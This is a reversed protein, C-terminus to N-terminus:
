LSEKENPDHSTLDPAPAVLRTVAERLAPRDDRRALRLGTDLLVDDPALWTIVDLGEHGVFKGAMGSSTGAGRVAAAPIFLTGPGPREIVVGAEHVSLTASAREGLEPTSVRALWDGSLTSSVYTARVPPLLQTGLDPVGAVVPVAPVRPVLSRGERRRHRFGVFIVLLIALGIVVWIGMALPFPM